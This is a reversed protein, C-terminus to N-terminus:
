LTNSPAIRSQTSRMFYPSGSHCVLEIKSACSSDTGWRAHRKHSPATESSRNRRLSTHQAAENIAALSCFALFVPSRMTGTPVESMVSRKSSILYPLNKDVGESSVLRAHDLRMILVLVEDDPLCLM